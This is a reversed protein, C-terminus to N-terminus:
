SICEIENVRRMALVLREISKMDNLKKIVELKFKHKWNNDIYKQFEFYGGGLGYYFTKTGIIVMSNSDNSLCHDIFNVLSEYYQVNYLTESM